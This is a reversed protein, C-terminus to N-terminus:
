DLNNCVIQEEDSYPEATFNLFAGCDTKAIFGGVSNRNISDFRLNIGAPLNLTPDNPDVIIETRSSFIFNPDDWELSDEFFWSDDCLAQRIEDDNNLPNNSDAQIAGTAFVQMPNNEDKKIVLDFSLSSYNGNLIDAQNEQLIELPYSFSILFAILEAQDCDGQSGPDEQVIEALYRSNIIGFNNEEGPREDDEEPPVEPPLAGGGGNGEGGSEGPNDPELDAFRMNQGELFYVAGCSKIKLSGYYSRRDNEMQVEIQLNQNQSLGLFFDDTNLGGLYTDGIFNVRSQSEEYSFDLRSLSQSVLQYEQLSEESCNGRQMLTMQTSFSENFESTLVQNRLDRRQETNSSSSCSVILNSVIFLLFLKM